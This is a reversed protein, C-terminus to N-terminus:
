SKHFLMSMTSAMPAPTVDTEKVTKGNASLAFTNERQLKGDKDRYTVKLTRPGDLKVEM